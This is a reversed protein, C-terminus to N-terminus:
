AIFNTTTTTEKWSKKSHGEDRREKAGNKDGGALSFKSLHFKNHTSQTDVIITVGFFM